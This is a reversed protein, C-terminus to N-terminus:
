QKQMRLIDRRFGKGSVTTKTWGGAREYSFSATVNGRLEPRKWGSICSVFVDKALFPNQVERINVARGAKVKFLYVVTFTAEKAVKSLAVNGCYTIHEEPEEGRAPAQALLAVLLILNVSGIARTLHSM